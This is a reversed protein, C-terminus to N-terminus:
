EETESPAPTKAKAEETKPKPEARAESKPKAAAKDTKDVKAPEAVPASEDVTSTAGYGESASLDIMADNITGETINASQGGGGGGAAGKKSGGSDGCGALALLAFSVLIVRMNRGKITM